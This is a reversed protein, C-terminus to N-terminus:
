LERTGGGSPSPAPEPHDRKLWNLLTAYHSQYRKGKSKMYSSLNEIEERVQHEPWRGCLRTWEAETLTVNEFEGFTRTEESKESHRKNPRKNTSYICKVTQHFPRRVKGM